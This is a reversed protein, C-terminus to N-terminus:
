LINHKELIERVMETFELLKENYAFDINKGNVISKRQKVALCNRYCDSQQVFQKLVTKDHIVNIYQIMINYEGPNLPAETKEHKEHLINDTLLPASDADSLIKSYYQQIQRPLVFMKDTASTFFQCEEFTQILLRNYHIKKYITFDYTTLLTVAKNINTLEINHSINPCIPYFPIMAALKKIHSFQSLQSRWSNALKELSYGILILFANNQAKKDNARSSYDEALYKLYNISRSMNQYYKVFQLCNTQKTFEIDKELFNNIRITLNKFVQSDDKIDTASTTV